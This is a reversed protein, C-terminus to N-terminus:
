NSVKFYIYVLGFWVLWVVLPKIFHIFCSTSIYTQYVIFCVLIYDMNLDKSCTIMRDHMAQGNNNGDNARREEKKKRKKEEEGDKAKSGSRPFERTHFNTEGLIKAYWSFIHLINNNFYYIPLSM